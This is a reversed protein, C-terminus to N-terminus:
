WADRCTRNLRPALSAMHACSGNSPDTDRDVAGVHCWHGAEVLADEAELHAVEIWRTPRLQPVRSTTHVDVDLALRPVLCRAPGLLGTLLRLHKMELDLDVVKLGGHGSREIRTARFCGPLWRVAIRLAHTDHEVGGSM